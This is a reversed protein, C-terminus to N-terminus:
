PQERRQGDARKATPARGLISSSSVTTLRGARGPGSAPITAVNSSWGGLLYGHFQEEEVVELEANQLAVRHDVHRL